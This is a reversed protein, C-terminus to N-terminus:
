EGRCRAPRAPNEQRRTTTSRREDGEPDFQQLHLHDGASVGAEAVEQRVGDAASEARQRPALPPPEHQGVGRAGPAKRQPPQGAASCPDPGAGRPRKPGADGCPEGQYPAHAGSSPCNRATEPCGSARRARPAIGEEWPGASSWAAVRPRRRRVGMPRRGSWDRGLPGVSQRGDAQDDVSPMSVHHQEPLVPLVEGEPTLMRAPMTLSRVGLTLRRLPMDPWGPSVTSASPARRSPAKSNRERISPGPAADAAEREAGTPAPRRMVGHSETRPSSTWESVANQIM